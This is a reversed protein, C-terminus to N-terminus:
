KTPVGKTLDIIKLKGTDPILADLEYQCQTYLTGAQFSNSSLSNISFADAKATRVMNNQDGALSQMSNAFAWCSFFPEGLKPSGFLRNGLQELKQAEAVRARSSAVDGPLKTNSVLFSRAKGLYEMAADYNPAAWVAGPGFALLCLAWHLHRKM